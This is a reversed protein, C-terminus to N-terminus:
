KVGAEVLANICARYDGTERNWGHESGYKAWGLPTRKYENDTNNVDRYHPLLLRIMAVNGHFAAWHLAAAHHQGFADVPFGAALMLEVACLDNNRAAHALHRQAPAPLSTNRLSRALTEDHLWCANLLKEDPPCRDM